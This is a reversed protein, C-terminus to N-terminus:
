SREPPYGLRGERQTVAVVEPAGIENAVSSRVDIDAASPPAHACIWDRPIRPHQPHCPILLGGEGILTNLPYPRALHEVDRARCTLEALDAESTPVEPSPAGVHAPLDVPEGNLPSSVM